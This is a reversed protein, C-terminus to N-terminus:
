LKAEREEVGGSEYVYGRTVPSGAKWDEYGYDNAAM